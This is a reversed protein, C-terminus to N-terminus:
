SQESLYTSIRDQLIDAASEPSRDGSLAPACEEDIIYDLSTPYYFDLKVSLIYDYLEDKLEQPLYFGEGEEVMAEPFYLEHNISSAHSESLEYDYMLQDMLVPIGQTDDSTYAEVKPRHRLIYCVLEWAAEKNGCSKMIGYPIGKFFFTNTSAGNGDSSPLGVFTVEERNMRAYINDALSENFGNIRLPFVLQADRMGRTVQDKSYFYREDDTMKMFDPTIGEPIPNDACFSLARVFDGNTFDCTFSTYDISDKGLKGLMYRSLSDTSEPEVFDMDEPLNNYFEMAEDVTWNTYEKGVFKTKAIATSIAFNDIMAPLEGDVTLAELANPLFDERQFGGYEDMLAFMDAMAGKRILTYMHETSTFLIDPGDGTILAMDLARRAEDWDETGSFYNVYNLEIDKPFNLYDGLAEDYYGFSGVTVVPKGDETFVPEKESVSSDPKSTCSVAAIMMVAATIMTKKM